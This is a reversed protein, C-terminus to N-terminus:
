HPTSSSARTFPVAPLPVWEGSSLCPPYQLTLHGCAASLPTTLSRASRGHYHPSQAQSRLPGTSARLPPSAPGHPHRSHVRRHRPLSRPGARSYSPAFSGSTSSTRIRQRRPRATRARPLCRAQSRYIRRGSLPLGARSIATNGSTGRITSRREHLLRLDVGLTIIRTPKTSRAGLQCQDLDGTNAGPLSAM